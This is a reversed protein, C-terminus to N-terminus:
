DSTVAALLSEQLVGLYGYVCLHAVRPSTPHRLVAEDLEDELITDDTVGLRTGLALRMDTLARLWADTTEDDLAIEVPQDVSEPLSALVAGAQDIKAAKLEGETLHRFEAATEPDARYADPFLREIVPDHRDLDDDGLLFVLEGVLQRLVAAEDAGLTAICRDHERRFLTM